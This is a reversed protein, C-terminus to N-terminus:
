TRKRPQQVDPRAVVRVFRAQALEPGIREHLENAIHLADEGRGSAPRLTLRVTGIGSASLMKEAGKLWAELKERQEHRSEEVRVEPLVVVLDQGFRAIVGAPVAGTDAIALDGRLTRCVRLLGNRADEPLGLAPLAGADFAVLERAPDLRIQKGSAYYYSSSPGVQTPAHPV